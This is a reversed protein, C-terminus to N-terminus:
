NPSFTKLSTLMKLYRSFSESEITQAMEIIQDHFVKRIWCGVLRSAKSEILNVRVGLLDPNKLQEARQYLCDTLYTEAFQRGEDIM